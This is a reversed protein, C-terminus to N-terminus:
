YEATAIPEFNSNMFREAPPNSYNIVMFAYAEKTANRFMKFFPKRPILGHDIWVQELQANTSSFLIIGTANERFATSIDSYKQATLITTILLHRGNSALRSIVGYKYRKLSGDYSVDDFIFCYHEMNQKNDMRELQEKRIVEYIDSLKNENYKRMVNMDPIDLEKVLIRFKEDLDSSACVIFINEPKFIDKYYKTRLMLNCVLNSKGSLESKGVIAVKAPLDFIKPLRIKVQDFQGAKMKLIEYKKTM